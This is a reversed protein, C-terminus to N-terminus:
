PGESFKRWYTWTERARLLGASPGASWVHRVLASYLSLTVERLM